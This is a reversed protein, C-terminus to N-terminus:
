SRARLGPGHDLVEMQQGNNSLQELRCESHIERKLILCPNSSLRTPWFPTRPHTVSLSGADAGAGEVWGDGALGDM